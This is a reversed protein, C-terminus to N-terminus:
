RQAEMFEVAAGEDACARPLAEVAADDKTSRNQVKTTM